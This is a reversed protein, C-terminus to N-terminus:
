CKLTFGLLVLVWGELFVILKLINKTCCMFLELDLDNSDERSSHTSCLAYVKNSTFYKLMDPSATFDKCRKSSLLLEATVRVIADLLNLQIRNRAKTKVSSELTLIREAVANNVPTIPCTLAFTALEKFAKHQLVGTWFQETDVPLGNKKFPAEKKWNVFSMQRNKINM